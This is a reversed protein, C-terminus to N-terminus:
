AAHNEGRIQESISRMIYYFCLKDMLTENVGFQKSVGELKGKWAKQKKSYENLM